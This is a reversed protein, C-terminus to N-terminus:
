PKEPQNINALLALLQPYLTHNRPMLKETERLLIGAEEIRNSQMLALASYFRSLFDDRRKLAPKWTEIAAAQQASTLQSLGLQFRALANAPNIELVRNFHKIARDHMGIQAYIGALMGIALEHRPQAEILSKLQVLAGEFDGKEVCQAATTLQAHKESQTHTTPM